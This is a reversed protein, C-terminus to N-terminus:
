TDIQRARRSGSNEVQLKGAKSTKGSAGVVYESCRRTKQEENNCLWKKMAYKNSALPRLPYDGFEDRAYDLLFRNAVVVFAITSDAM